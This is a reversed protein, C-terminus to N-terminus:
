STVIFGDTFLFRLKHDKKLLFGQSSSNQDHRNLQETAVGFTVKTKVLLVEPLLMEALPVELLLVELLCHEPIIEVVCVSYCTVTFCDPM